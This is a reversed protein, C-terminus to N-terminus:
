RFTVITVGADGEGFEGLRFDKVIKQRRLYQHVANRLAGTGKGHVVRVMPLHAMYADDLYKDLDNLAQDTTKGLLNIESGVNQSKKMAIRSYGSRSPPEKAAKEEKAYVLDSLKAKTNIIGCQVFLNGKQDPLSTVTGTLNMSLIKVTDGVRITEASVKQDTPRAEKGKISPAKANKDKIAERLMSRKQEMEQISAKSGLGQFSRITQDAVDKAEQLIERAEENAQQLIKEKKEELNEKQAMLAHLEKELREKEENIQTQQEEMALRKHELDSIVDEFSEQESTLHERAGEIIDPSLGLKGSIAFANSKGPIGILLRYTPMLSQVDFECCANVVGPRSLAYLKLQSYHTTALCQSKRKMLTELISIALAAGEDPDTGSCLEDFLCLSSADAEKLISVINTMHSSFTSLNQEISQEDGIDAFVKKYVPLSSRDLAPIFLGSQGMLSFLGVTKLTVTKGGTNPGTIIMQRQDKSLSLNIPVVKKPDLLPHRAGRLHLTSETTLIPRTANISLALQGKAFIFDLLTMLECNRKIQEAYPMLAESLERLIREIEEKEQQEIESIKNNLEVVASPEIFLTSGTSSKEHVIGPVNGKCEAKVPLTYRGNRQTIVADQLYTRASGNVMSLLHSHIKQDVAAKSKRLKSLAASAHDAVEEESLICDRIRAAQDSLPLLEEFFSSLADGSADEEEGSKIRGYAKVRATNELFGAMALLESQNLSGGISLRSLQSSFDRNNGFSIGSPSRLIRSTAAETQDLRLAIQSLDAAPTLYRCMARGPDSTARAELLAIIKHYELVQLAKKNM